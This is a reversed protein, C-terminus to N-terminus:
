INNSHNDAPAHACAGLHSGISRLTISKRTRYKSEEITIPNNFTVKSTRVWHSEYNKINTIICRFDNVNQQMVNVSRWHLGKEISRLLIM